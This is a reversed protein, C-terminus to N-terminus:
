RPFKFMCIWPSHQLWHYHMIACSLQLDFSLSNWSDDVIVCLKWDSLMHLTDIESCILLQFDKRQAEYRFRTFYHSYCFHKRKLSCMGGVMIEMGNFVQSKKKPSIARWRKKNRQFVNLWLPFSSVFSSCICTIRPHIWVKSSCWACTTQVSAHFRGPSQARKTNGTLGADRMRYPQHKGHIFSYIFLYVFLCVFVCM